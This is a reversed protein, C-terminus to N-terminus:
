PTLTKLISIQKAVELAQADKMGTAAVIDEVDEYNGDFFQQLGEIMSELDLRTLNEIKM